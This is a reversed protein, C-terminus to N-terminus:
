HSSPVDHMTDVGDGTFPLYVSVIAWVYMSWNPMLVSLMVSLDYHTAFVQLGSM